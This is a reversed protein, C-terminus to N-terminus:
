NLSSCPEEGTAISEALDGHWLTSLLGRGETSMKLIYGEDRNSSNWEFEGYGALGILKCRGYAHEALSAEATGPEPGGAEPGGAENFLARVAGIDANVVLRAWVRCEPIEFLERSDEDYGSVTLAVFRPREEPPKELIRRFLRAWGAPSERVTANFIVVDKSTVEALMKNAEAFVLTTM